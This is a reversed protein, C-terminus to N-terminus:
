ETRANGSEISTIESLRMNASVNLINDIRQGLHQRKLMGAAVGATNEDPMLKLAGRFADAVEPDDGAGLQGCMVAIMKQAQHMGKLTEEGTFTHRIAVYRKVGMGAVAVIAGRAVRAKEDVSFINQALEAYVLDLWHMTVTSLYGWIYPDEYISSPLTRFHTESLLFERLMKEAAGIAKNIERYRRFTSFV